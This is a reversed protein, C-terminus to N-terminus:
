SANPQAAMSRVVTYISTALYGLLLLGVPIFARSMWWFLSLFCVHAITMIVQWVPGRRFGALAWTIISLFYVFPGAGLFLDVAFALYSSQHVSPAGDGMGALKSGLYILAAYGVLGIFSVLVIFPRM